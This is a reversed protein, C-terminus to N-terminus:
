CPLSLSLSFFRITRSLFYVLLCFFNHGVEGGNTLTENHSHRRKKGVHKVDASLCHSILHGPRCLCSIAWSVPGVPDQDEYHGISTIPSSRRPKNRHGFCFIWHPCVCFVLLLVFSCSCFFLFWFCLCIYSLSLSSLGLGHRVALPHRLVFSTLSVLVRTTVQCRRPTM